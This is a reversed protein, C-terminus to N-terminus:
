FKIYFLFFFYKKREGSNVIGLKPHFILINQDTKSLQYNSPEWSFEGEASVVLEYLSVMSPRNTVLCLEQIAVYGENILDFDVSYIQGCFATIYRVAPLEIRFSPHPLSVTGSLVTCCQINRSMQFTSKFSRKGIDLLIHDFIGVRNRALFSRSESTLRIQCNLLKACHEVSCSIGTIVISSLDKRPVLSLEVEVCEEDPKLVM